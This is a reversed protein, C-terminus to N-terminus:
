FDNRRLISIIGVFSVLIGSVFFYQGPYLMATQSGAQLSMYSGLAFLILGSASLFLNLMGLSAQATRTDEM